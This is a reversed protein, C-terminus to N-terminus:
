KTLWLRRILICVAAGVVIGAYNVALDSLSFARRPLYYQSLEDLTVACLLVLTPWGIFMVRRKSSPMVLVSLFSLGSAILFHLHKDGGLRWELHSIQEALIGLSKFLSVLGCLGAVAVFLWIRNVAPYVETGNAKCRHNEQM